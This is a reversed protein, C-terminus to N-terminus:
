LHGRTSNRELQRIRAELEFVDKSQGLYEDVARQDLEWFWHDIRELLGHRAPAAAPTTRPLRDDDDPRTPSSLGEAILAFVRAVGTHNLPYRCAQVTTRRHAPQRDVSM